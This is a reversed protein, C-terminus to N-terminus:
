TLNFSLRTILRSAANKVQAHQFKTLSYQDINPITHRWSPVSKMNDYQGSSTEKNNIPITHGRSPVSTMNDQRRRRMVVQDIRFLSPSCM